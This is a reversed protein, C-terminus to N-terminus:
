RRVVRYYRESGMSTLSFGEPATMTAATAELLPTIPLWRRLDLSEELLYLAGPEGDWQLFVGSFRDRGVRLQPRPGNGVESLGEDADVHELGVLDRLPRLDQVPNDRISLWRLGHANELGRLDVIGQGALDLREVVALNGLTVPANGLGLQRQLAAELQGDAFVVPVEEVPRYRVLAGRGSYFPDSFRGVLMGDLHPMADTTYREQSVGFPFFRDWDGAPTLRLWADRFRSVYVRGQLDMTASVFGIASDFAFSHDWNGEGDMLRISTGDSVLIREGVAVSQLFYGSFVGIDEFSMDVSGDPDIRLLHNSMSGGNVAGWRGGLLVKGNAFSTLFNVSVLSDGTMPDLVLEPFAPDVGGDSLFRFLVAGRPSALSRLVRLFRGDSLVAPMANVEEYGKPTDLMEVRGDAFRRGFGAGLTGYLTGDASAVPYDFFETMEVVAYSEDLRGDAHLRVYTERAKEGIGVVARLLIRGDPLMAVVSQPTVREDLMFGKDRADVTGSVTVRAERSWREGVANTVRLQYRGADEFQVESLFLVSEEAGKIAEGDMFWQYLLEGDLSEELEGELRVEEGRLVEVDSVQRRFRPGGLRTTDAELRVMTTLYEASGRAKLYGVVYLKRNEADFALRQISGEVGAHDTFFASRRGERDIFHLSALSREERVINWREIGVFVGGSVPDYAMAGVVHGYTDVDMAAAEFTPDIEGDPLLRWIYSLGFPHGNTAVYCAGKEAAVVTSFSEFRPGFSEDLSGEPTLRRVRHNVQDDTGMVLWAGDSGVVFRRVGALAGMWTEGLPHPTIDAGTPALLIWPRERLVVSGDDLVAGDSVRSLDAGPPLLPWSLGRSPFLLRPPDMALVRGDPLAHFGRYSFPRLPPALSYVDNGPSVPVSRDVRGSKLLVAVSGDGRQVVLQGDASIVAASVDDFAPQFTRDLAGPNAWLSKLLVLGAFVAHQFLRLPM